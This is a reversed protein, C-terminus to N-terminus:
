ASKQWKARMAESLQLFKYQAKVKPSPLPPMPNKAGVKSSRYAAAKAEQQNNWDALLMKIEAEPANLWHNCDHGYERVLYDKRGNDTGDEDTYRSYVYEIDAQTLNCKRAWGKVAKAIQKGRLEPIETLTLVWLFAAALMDDTVAECVQDRWFLEKGLTPSRFVEGGVVLPYDYISDASGQAGNVVESAVADLEVIADVDELALAHQTQDLLEQVKQRTMIQMKANGNQTDQATPM